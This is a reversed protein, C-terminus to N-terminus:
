SEFFFDDILRFVLQESFVGWAGRALFGPQSGCRLVGAAGTGGATIVRRQDTNTGPGPQREWCVVCM